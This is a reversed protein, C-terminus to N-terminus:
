FYRFEHCPIKLCPTLMCKSVSEQGELYGKGQHTHTPPPANQSRQNQCTASFFRCRASRKKGESIFVLATNQVAIQLEARQTMTEDDGTLTLCQCITMNTM